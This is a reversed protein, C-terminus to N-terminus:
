LFTVQKRIAGDLRKLYDDRPIEIAGMQETFPNIVQTDFLIFGRHHLHQLLHILGVKSANPERYFMSEGAFFGGIAVGYIGGVLRKELWVEVSHAYGALHFETYSRIFRNSIWTEDRSESLKSCERIVSGFAEDFSIRFPNKRALKQLSKSFVPPNIEFIARPNPSWWTVPQDTWPFIGSRYAESLREVSLDGGVAVLGDSDAQRPDPFSSEGFSFFSPPM